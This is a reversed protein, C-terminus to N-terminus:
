KGPEGGEKPLNGLLVDKLLKRYEEDIHGLEDPLGHRTILENITGETMALTEKLNTILKLVSQNEGEANVAPYSQLRSESAGLSTLLKKVCHKLRQQDNETLQSLFIKSNPV